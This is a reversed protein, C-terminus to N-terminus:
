KVRKLVKVIESGFANIQWNKLEPVAALTKMDRPREVALATLGVKNILLGPDVALDKAKRIRWEKLAKIRPPVAAPVPPRDRHPYEPLADKPLDLGARIVDLVDKAYMQIQKASLIKSADLKKLTVPKTVALKLMCRNSFIKFLPRDKKLAIDRRLRLLGELVGLSQSDLKGAGKFNLYLPEGNNEAPRVKSLYECEERVWALRGRRTLETELMSALPLLYRVDDVAYRIMEMPLPRKSWDKRQYKKELGIQFREQLVAELSTAEVGLFRCALQTDFLNEIEIRFDRYLSRVDYDAGHFIKQIRADNFISKLASFDEIRLPDIVATDRRTAMQLLCVKEQFHYMSDAELDVAIRRSHAITRVFGRLESATTIIQIDDDMLPCIVQAPRAMKGKVTM